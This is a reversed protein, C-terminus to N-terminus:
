EGLGAIRLPGFGMEEEVVVEEERGGGGEVDSGWEDWCSEGEWQNCGFEAGMVDGAGTRASYGVILPMAEVPIVDFLVNPLTSSFLISPSESRM